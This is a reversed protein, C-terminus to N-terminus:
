TESLLTRRSLLPLALPPCLRRLSCRTESPLIINILLSSEKFFFLVCRPVMWRRWPHRLFRGIGNRLLCERPSSLDSQVRRKALLVGISLYGSVRQLPPWPGDHLRINEGHRIRGQGPGRRPRRLANRNRPRPLRSLHRVTPLRSRQRGLRSPLGTMKHGADLRKQLSRTPTRRPCRLRCRQGEQHSSIPALMAPAPTRRSSLPHRPDLWRQAQHPIPM